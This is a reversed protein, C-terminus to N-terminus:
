GGASATARPLVFFFEVGGELREGWGCTGGDMEVLRQVMALGLGRPAGPEHMRHFPYFLRGRKEVPVTGGSRLWFRCGDTEGSWGAEIAGGGGHELANAILERWVVELAVPRAEVEPWERPQGLVTGAKLIAGEMRQFASWFPGIMNLRRRPETSAAAKAFLSTREILKVLGDASDLIPQTLAVAAPADEALVERLVETSTMVGGLPTRLDHAIRFGMTALSGRLRANERRLEHLAWEARLAAEVREPAWGSGWAADLGNRDAGGLVVVAWRPLGADDVATRLQEAAATAPDHTVVLEGALGARREVKSSTPWVEIKCGPFVRETAVAVATVFEPDNGIRWVLPCCGHTPLVDYSSNAAGTMHLASKRETQTM